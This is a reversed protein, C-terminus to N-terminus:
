EQQVPKKPKGPRVVVEDQSSITIKSQEDIVQVNVEMTWQIQSYGVIKKIRRLVEEAQKQEWFSITTVGGVKELYYDNKYEKIQGELQDIDHQSLTSQSKIKAEFASGERQIQGKQVKVFYESLKPKPLTTDASKSVTFSYGGGQM